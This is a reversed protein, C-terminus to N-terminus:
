LVSTGTGIESPLVGRAKALKNQVQLRRRRVIVEKRRSSHVVRADVGNMRYIASAGDGRGVYRQLSLFGSGYNIPGIRGDHRRDESTQRSVDVRASKAVRYAGLGKGTSKRYTGDGYRKPRFRKSRIVVPTGDSMKLGHWMDSPNDCLNVCTDHKINVMVCTSSVDSGHSSSLNRRQSRGGLSSGRLRDARQKVFWLYNPDDSFMSESKKLDNVDSFPSCTSEEADLLCQLDVNRLSVVKTATAGVADLSISDCFEGLCPGAM